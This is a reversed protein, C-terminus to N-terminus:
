CAGASSLHCEPPRPIGVYGDGDLQGCAALVCAHHGLDRVQLDCAHGSNNQVREHGDDGPKACSDDREPLTGRGSKSQGATKHQRQASQRHTVRVQTSSYHSMRLM